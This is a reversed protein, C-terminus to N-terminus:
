LRFPYNSSQNFTTPTSTPFSSISTTLSGAPYSQPYHSISPSSPVPLSVLSQIQMNPHTAPQFSYQPQPAWAPSAPQYHQHQQQQQQQQNMGGFAGSYSGFPGAIPIHNPSSMDFSGSTTTNTTSTTPTSMRVDDHSRSQAADFVSMFASVSTRSVGSGNEMYHRRQEETIAQTPLRQWTREGHRKIPQGAHNVTVTASTTTALSSSESMAAQYKLLVQREEEPRLLSKAKAKPVVVTVPEGVRLNSIGSTIQGTGSGPSGPKKGPVTITPITPRNSSTYSATAALMALSSSTKQEIDPKNNTNTRLTTSLSSSSSSSRKFSSSVSSDDDETEHGNEVFLKGLKVHASHAERKGAPIWRDSDTTKVKSKKNITIDITGPRIIHYDYMLKTQGYRKIRASSQEDANPSWWKDGKAVHNACTLNFGRAGAGYTILLVLINPDNKFDHITEDQEIPSQGGASFRRVHQGLGAKVLAFELLKLPQELTFFVIAKELNGKAAIDRLKGVFTVLRSMKASGIGLPGDIDMKKSIARWRHLLSADRIHKEISKFKEVSDGVDVGDDKGSGTKRDSGDGNNNNNDDDNDDEDDDDDNDNDNDEDVDDEDDDDDGKKKKKTKKQSSGDSHLVLAPAIACQRLATMLALKHSAPAQKAIADIVLYAETEDESAKVEVCSSEMAPLGLNAEELTVSLMHDNLKAENYATLSWMVLSFLESIALGAQRILAYLNKGNNCFPTGSAPLRYLAHLCMLVKWKSTRVNVLVEAEDFAITGFLVHFLLQPGRMVCATDIWNAPLTPRQFLGLKENFHKKWIKSRSGAQQIAEYNTLVIDYQCLRDYTLNEYEETSMFDKHYILVRSETGMFKVIEEYWQVILRRPVIFLSTRISGAIIPGFTRTISTCREEVPLPKDSCMKEIVPSRMTPLGLCRLLLQHMVLLMATKGTGMVAALILGRCRHYFKYLLYKMIRVQLIQHPLLSFTSPFPIGFNPDYKYSTAPIARCELWFMRKAIALPGGRGKRAKKAPRQSTNNTSSNNNNFMNSIISTSTSPESMSSLLSGFTSKKKAPGTTSLTPPTSSPVSPLISAVAPTSMTISAHQVAPTTTMMPPAGHPAVHPAASTTFTPTTTFATDSNVFGRGSSGFGGSFGDGVTGGFSAVGFNSQGNLGNLGNLGAFGTGFGGTPGNNNIFRNNFENIGGGTLSFGNGGFQM